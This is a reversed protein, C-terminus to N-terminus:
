TGTSAWCGWRGPRAGPVPPRPGRGTCRPRSAAPRRRPRRATRGTTPAPGARRPGGAPPTGCTRSSRPWPRPGARSSRRASRPPRAAPSPRAARVVEVRDGLQATAEREIVVVRHHGPDLGDHGLPLPHDAGQGFQRHLGPRRPGVEHQEPGLGVVPDAAVVHPLAQEVPAHEHPVARRPGAECPQRRTVTPVGASFSEKRSARVSTRDHGSGAGLTPGGDEGAGRALGVDGDLDIEVPTAPHLDLGSQREEVVHQALQAAVAAEIQDHPRGPSTSISAWWVTSSTPM